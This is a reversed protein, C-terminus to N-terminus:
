ICKETSLSDDNNHSDVDRRSERTVNNVMENVIDTTFNKGHYVTRDIVSEVVLIEHSLFYM